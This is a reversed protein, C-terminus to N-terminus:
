RKTAHYLLQIHSWVMVRGLRPRSSQSWLLAQGWWMPSDPSAVHRSTIYGLADVTLGSGMPSRRVGVYVTRVRLTPGPVGHTCAPSGVIPDWPGLVSCVRAKFLVWAPTRHRCTDPGLRTSELGIRMYEQEGSLRLGSAAVHCVVHPM